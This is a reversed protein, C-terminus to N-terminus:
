GFCPLSFATGLRRHILISSTDLGAWGARLSSYACFPPLNRSRAFRQVPTRTSSNHMYPYLFCQRGSNGSVEHLVTEIIGCCQHDHMYTGNACLIEVGKGNRRRKPKEAFCCFCVGSWTSAVVVERSSLRSGRARGYGRVM